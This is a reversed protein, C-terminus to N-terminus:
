RLIRSGSPNVAYEFYLPGPKPIRLYDGIDISCRGYETGDRLRLFFRFTGAPRDWREGVKHSFAFINTYGEAPARFMSSPSETEEVLGGSVARIEFSWDFDRGTIDKSMKIWIKLDGADANSQTITGTHLDITYSTGDPVIHFAREGSIVREHINTSWMKFSIPNDLTGSVSGFVRQASPELEYGAMTLSVLDLGSGSLNNLFFRGNLDTTLNSNVYRAKVIYAPDFYPQQARLVAVAGSLGNGDQDIVRGYFTIPVNMREIGRKYADWKEIPLMPLDNTSSGNQAIVGHRLFICVLVLITVALLRPFISKINM